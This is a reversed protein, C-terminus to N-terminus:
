NVVASTTRHFVRKLLKMLPADEVRELFVVGPVHNRDEYRANIRWGANLRILRDGETYTVCKEELQKYLLGVQVEQAAKYNL